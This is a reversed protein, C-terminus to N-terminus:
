QEFHLLRSLPSKLISLSDARNVVTQELATGLKWDVSYFVPDWWSKVLCKFKVFFLTMQTDYSGPLAQLQTYDM